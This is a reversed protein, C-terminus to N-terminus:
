RRIINRQYTTFQELGTTTIVVADEFRVGYKNNAIWIDINFTMNPELVLASRNDVWPGECEQLGTGHAPGYLNLGEFGHKKLGAQFRDYVYAFPVGPCMDELTQNLLELAASMMREHEKEIKGFVVPRCMNGCYGQYKAGFTLQVMDNEEIVRDTSRCLSQFSKPGSTVWIPYSTDEAGLKYASSRWIAECENETMGPQITNVVIKISEETIRNAERLLLIETDSKFWRIKMILNEADDIEADPAADLIDQMIAYPIINPNAIGIRKLPQRERIEKFLRSYNLPNTPKDWEPASTEVYQPHVRIDDTKAFERAFELSEPGGTLMIASGNLPIVVGAFDFVCWFGTLYRVMANECECAHAIIIDFGEKEMSQQIRRIRQKYESDLIHINEM